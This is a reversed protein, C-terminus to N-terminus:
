IFFLKNSLMKICLYRVEFGHIREICIKYMYLLRPCPHARERVKMKPQTKKLICIFRPNNKRYKQRSTGSLFMMGSAAKLLPPARGLKGAFKFIVNKRCSLSAKMIYRSIGCIRSKKLFDILPRPPPPFCTEKRKVAKHRGGVAMNLLSQILIVKQLM